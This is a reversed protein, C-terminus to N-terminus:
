YCIKNVAKRMVDIDIHTYVSETVGRGAHGVIAKTVREDIGADACLSIFTHRTDHVTHEGDYMANFNGWYKKYPMQPIADPTFFPALKDAIPVTRIGASTKSQRIYVCQDAFDDPQLALYEGIRLGSFILCLVSKSFPDDSRWLEAIEDRTFVKRKLKRGEPIKSLNVYKLREAQEASVLDNQAAYDYIMRLISLVTKATQRTKITNIFEQAEPLRFSRVPLDLIEKMHSHASDYCKVTKGRVQSEKWDYWRDYLEGITLDSLDYPNKNYEALATLAEAKTKYYGIFQYVPYSKGRKENYTWGTVKRAAYPKRRNGNLKYVSGYGNPLRM